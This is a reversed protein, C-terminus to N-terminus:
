VPTEFKWYGKEKMLIQKNTKQVTYRYGFEVKGGLSNKAAKIRFVFYIYAM